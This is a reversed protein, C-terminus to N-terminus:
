NLFILDLRLVERKLFYKECDLLNKQENKLEDKDM